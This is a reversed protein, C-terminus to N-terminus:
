KGSAILRQMLAEMVPDRPGAGGRKLQDCLDVIAKTNDRMDAHLDDSRRQNSRELDLLVDKHADIAATLADIRKGDAFSGAVVAVTKAQDESSGGSESANKGKLALIIPAICAAVTGILALVPGWEGAEM